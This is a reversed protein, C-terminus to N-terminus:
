STANRGANFGFRKSNVGFVTPRHFTKTTCTYQSATGFVHGPLLLAETVLHTTHAHFKSVVYKNMAIIHKM